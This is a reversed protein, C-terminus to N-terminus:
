PHGSEQPEQHPITYMHKSIQLDCGVYQSKATLWLSQSTASAVPFHFLTTPPDTPRRCRRRSACTLWEGSSNSRMLPFRLVTPQSMM